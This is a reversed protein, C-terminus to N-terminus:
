LDLRSRLGPPLTPGVKPDYVFVIAHHVLARNGFRIEAAQLWHDETFNTPVTFYQYVVTGEAPVDFEVPMGFVEDPKGINWGPYYEPQPPLDKNEGQLAGGDIGAVITDIETPNLPRHHTLPFSLLTLNFFTLFLNPGARSDSASRLYSRCRGFDPEFCIGKAPASSHSPCTGATYWVSTFAASKPPIMM